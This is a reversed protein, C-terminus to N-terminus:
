LAKQAYKYGSDTISLMYKKLPNKPSIDKAATNNSYLSITFSGTPPDFNLDEFTYTASNGGEHNPNSQIYCRQLINKISGFGYRDCLLLCFLARDM